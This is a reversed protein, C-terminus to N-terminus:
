KDEYQCDILKINKKKQEPALSAKLLGMSKTNEWSFVLAYTM